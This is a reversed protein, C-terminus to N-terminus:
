TKRNAIKRGNANRDIGQKPVTLGSTADRSDSRRAKKAGEPLRRSPQFDFEPIKSQKPIIAFRRYHPKAQPPKAM